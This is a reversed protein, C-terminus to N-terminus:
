DSSFVPARSPYITFWTIKNCFNGFFYDKSFRNKSKCTPFGIYRAVDERPSVRSTVAALVHATSLLPFTANIPARSSQSPVVFQWFCSLSIQNTCAFIPFSGRIALFVIFFDNGEDRREGQTWYLQYSVVDVRPQRRPLAATSQSTCWPRM